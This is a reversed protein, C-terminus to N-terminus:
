PVTFRYVVSWASWNGASDRTRVRWNYTRKSILAKSQISQKNTVSSFEPSSFDANNDVQVEYQAAGTVATWRLWPKRLATSNNAPTTPMPTAPPITDVTFSFTKSFKGPNSDGNFAWVRIFYTGDTLPTAPTLSTESRTSTQLIQTFNPDRAIFLEYARAGRVSTWSLKPTPSNTQNNNSVGIVTPAPFNVPIRALSFVEGWTFSGNGALLNGTLDSISRDDQLDLRLTGSGVGTNVTVVYFPNANQINLINADLNSTIVRFDTVDVGTVSESFTIIFDVTQNITPNNGARIISTVQPPTKDIAYSESNTFDGNGIGTGGLPIGQANTITDDDALDLKLQGDSSGSYVSVIYFPNVSTVSTISADAAGTLKFDSIDVGSVTESFTIIFDVNSANTRDNGNRIISTVIPTDIAIPITEGYFNGNGAGAGGLINGTGDSISDNDSLDLRIVDSGPNLIVRVTYLNGTGSISEIGAGNMTSLLFDGGDVGTVPESFSVTYEVSSAAAQGARSISLVVPALRDILYEEGTFGQSTPNGAQDIVSDNDIFDLRLQDNGAGTTISVIYSTGTGSVNNIAAGAQSTLNFDFNDVGTVPESFTVMYDVTGANTPSSGTRTIGVVQPISKDVHYSAGSSFNGNGADLGGLKSGTANLISDDDIVDLRVTGDGNGSNVSVLYSDGSGSVANIAVGNINSSVSFDAADVGTVAESFVVQFVLESTNTPSAGTLSVSSVTPYGQGIFHEDVLIGTRSFMQFKMYISTAEVRMAGFDQNFRAQSEPLITEFNYIEGGGVGNVFYPIGDVILREYVHDHGTLVADAGWSKFPWRMYETSGHRGSSYPAHHFVVVNFPSTSAALGKRLWIAQESTSTVGDPENRDSDLIFFHVPGQIFEYYTQNQRLGFYDLLPKVGNGGWDHNGISPFFRRTPSGSGYAGKYPYIFEQYYQGINQDITEAIGDPYNNDGTTVIFDPNWSKVLSAVDAAPQGALGYDGIVAFVIRGTQARASGGTQMSILLVFFAIFITRQIRKAPKM